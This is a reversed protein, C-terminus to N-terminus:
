PSTACTSTVYPVEVVAIEDDKLLRRIGAVFGNLDAVHALVNHAHIVDAMQGKRVLEEAVEAGFFECLTPVGRQEEAIRSINRAPEVGLVPVGVELYYQLLYGDNSGLEVVMSEANLQREEIMRSALQSAHSLMSDSFSSLYLYNGFLQEPPVTETIQVLSCNSCWVLDLPYTPEPKALQDAAILANTLPTRGLTLVAVLDRYGCSRCTAVSGM